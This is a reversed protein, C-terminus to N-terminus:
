HAFLCETAKLFSDEFVQVSFRKQVSERAAGVVEMREHEPMQLAEALCSAFQATSQALYGTRKGKWDVVIDMAPGASDHAVMVCGAAMCEVVSIGFHENWMTHLAVVARGLEKQLEGYSINLLFDVQNSIGLREAERKLEEVRQQDEEHRCSGILVLRIAQSRESPLKNVLEALVKLQLSHDKEPRFQGVSAIRLTKDNRSLPLLQFASTDCPPYVVLCAAPSWLRAIHDRTWSSNVMAVDNCRGVAGYLKAFFRYYYLKLHTLVRSRVIFAANNHSAQRSSVRDIMDCSVVPYHVYSAVKCGGLWRFLPLTFAYGMSDIYVDPCLKLLAEMGLLMSGVSQGLLTFRPWRSAEVWKRLKLYVFHVENEKNLSIGFRSHAKSLIDKSSADTDGTYIVCRVMPYRGQLAHVAQWLVREGGGGANCYPHFFGVVLHRKDYGWERRKRWTFLVILVKLCVVTAALLAGCCALASFTCALWSCKQYVMM